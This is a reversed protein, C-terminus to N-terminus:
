APTSRVFDVVTQAFRAPADVHGFHGSDELIVLKSDAILDNIERAWRPRLHLRAARCDRPDPHHHLVPDGPREDERAWYDAFYAPLLRRAAATFADDSAISPVSRWADLVDELKPNGANARAFADLNAAAEAFHGPGVAPASEYLIIGALQAPYNQAYFQTVLGGHSHGM